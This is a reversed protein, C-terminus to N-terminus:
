TGFQDLGLFTALAEDLRRRTPEDLSGVRQAIKSRTVTMLKDVMIQSSKVLGNDATPELGIRLLPADQLESTVPAITVSTLAFADAQVIIAPRPKGYEGPAVAIVIDGRKM